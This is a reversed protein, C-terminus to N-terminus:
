EHKKPHHHTENKDGVITFIDIYAEDYREEEKTYPKLLKKIQTTFIDTPVTSVTWDNLKTLPSNKRSEANAIINAVLQTCALTVPGPIPDTFTTNCYDDIIISSQEIWTTILQDLSETDTKEFGYHQPKVGTIRKVVEVTCYATM